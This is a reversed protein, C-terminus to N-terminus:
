EVAQSFPIWNLTSPDRLAYSDTMLKQGDSWVTIQGLRDTRLLLSHAQTLREVVKPHPHHFLNEYGASVVAIAPQTHALFAESSSSKSGHHAVKLYDLRRLQPNELINAEVRQDIDGTLLFHKKGHALQLVLSTANASDMPTDRPPWLVKVDLNGLQVQDGTGLYIIQVQKAEARAKLKQWLAGSVSTSVWLQKPAFNELTSLLGGMHDADGHSAILTDIQAIRRSWLYPSVTSEGPDFKALRSGGADLLATTGDPTALFISDGQGVDIATIELLGARLDPTRAYPHAVIYGFLSLSAFVPVAVWKPFRRAAWTTFFLTIPLALLIWFPPDPIRASHDWSIHWDVVDRSTYLLWRLLPTLIPGTLIALFGLPVAATLLLVVPLNATLSSFSLRHFFLVTPLCLGILVVASTIVLDIGSFFLTGLTSVLPELRRQPLHLLRSLTHVALRIELRREAIRPEARDFNREELHYLAQKWLATTNEILPAALTALTLVALFSLQFSAEFLQGPDLLLYLIAVAALLNLVRGRRYFHRAGLYLLYGGAARVVPASLDCLLAYLVALIACAAHAQMNRLKLLRLAWFLAAALVTIHTGSIVIAHYTGTKRYHDIWADELKANDGLLLAALMADLYRDGGAIKEIRALLWSRTKYISEQFANGCSRGESEIEYGRAVNASWYINRHAFYREADFNGPNGSNHIKRLRLPLKFRQGYQWDPPTENAKLYYSVRLRAEPTAAFHFFLRDAERQPLSDICGALLVVERPETELIPTPKSQAAATSSVAIWFLVANGSLFAALKAHVHRSLFWLALSALALLPGLWVEFGLLRAFVIGSIVACLPPVLPEHLRKSLSDDM